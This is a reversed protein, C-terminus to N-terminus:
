GLSQIYTTLTVIANPVGARFGVSVQAEIYGYPPDPVTSDPDADDVYRVNTVIPLTIGNISTVEDSGLAWTGDNLRKIDCGDADLHSEPCGFVTPEVVIFGAARMEELRTNAMELAARKNREVNVRASSFFIFAAGGLAVITMIFIALLSEVLTTGKQFNKNM